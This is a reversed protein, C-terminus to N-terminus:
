RCNQPKLIWLQNPSHTNTHSLPLSLAILPFLLSGWLHTGGILLLLGYICVHTCVWLGMDHGPWPYRSCYDKITCHQYCKVVSSPFTDEEIEVVWTFLGGWLRACVLVCLTWGCVLPMENWYQGYFCLFALFFLFVTNRDGSRVRQWLSSPQLRRINYLFCVGFWVRRKRVFRQCLDAQVCEINFQAQLSRQSIHLQFAGKMCQGRFRWLVIISVCM